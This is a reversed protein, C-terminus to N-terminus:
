VVIFSDLELHLNVYLVSLFGSSSLYTTTTFNLGWYMTPNIWKKKKKSLFRSQFFDCVYKSVDILLENYNYLLSLWTVAM